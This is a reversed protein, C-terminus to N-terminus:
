KSIYYNCVKKRRELMDIKKLIIRQIKNNNKAKINRFNNIKNQIDVETADIIPDM